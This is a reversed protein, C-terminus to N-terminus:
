LETDILHLLNKGSDRVDIIALNTPEGTSLFAALADRGMRPLTAISISSMRHKEEPYALPKEPLYKHLLGSFLQIKLLLSASHQQVTSFARRLM